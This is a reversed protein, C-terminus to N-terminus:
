RAGLRVNLPGFCQGRPVAKATAAPSAPGFSWQQARTGAACPAAVVPSDLAKGQTAQLCTAPDARVRLTGDTANHSFTQNRAGAVCPRRCVSGDHEAACPGLTVCLDDSSGTNYDATASAYIAGTAASYNFRENHGDGVCTWPRM